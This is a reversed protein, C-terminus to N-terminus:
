SLGTVINETVGYRGDKEGGASDIDTALNTGRPGERSPSLPATSNLTAKVKNHM